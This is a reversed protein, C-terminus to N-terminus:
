LWMKLVIRDITNVPFPEEADDEEDLELAPVVAGGEALLSILVSILGPHEVSFLFENMFM